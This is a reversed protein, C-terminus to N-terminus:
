ISNGMEKNEKQNWTRWPIIRNIKRTDVLNGLIYGCLAGAPGFTSAGVLVGVVLLVSSVINLRATLDFQQMGNLYAANFTGLNQLVFTVAVAAWVSNSATRDSTTGLVLILSMGVGAALLQRVYLWRALVSAEHQRGEGNLAAVFRTTTSPFGLCSLTGVTDSIWILYALAGAGTPGLLRATAVAVVFKGTVSSLTGVANWVTNQM